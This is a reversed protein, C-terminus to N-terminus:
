DAEIRVAKKLTQANSILENLDEGCITIHGMKRFPKTQKKGYLHLYAGKCEFVKDSGRYIVNGSHGESGLLNIMVAPSHAHCDGLPLSLIARLHQEYQSSFNAEITHHGSNHPRPASENVMIHGDKTLFLEVAILGVLNLSEVVKRGLQVAKDALEESIRAPSVLMEVLNAEDSFEMEVVPFVNIENGTNRSLIVSLERDIDVKPEVISETDLLKHYEEKSNIIAVGRGDYGERCAKQVFPLHLNGLEVAHMIEDKGNFHEFSPADISHKRYFEKQLGKDKITEIVEPSPYIEVGKDRLDRLAQTNVNEIEITVVDKDSGFNMVDNYDNFQGTVMENALAAAPCEPNPDLVACYVDWRSASQILMKGLQGGGLIGLKKTGSFWHEMASNM